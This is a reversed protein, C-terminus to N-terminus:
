LLLILTDTDVYNSIKLNYPYIDWGSGQPIKGSCRHGKSSKVFDILGNYTGKIIEVAYSSYNIGRIIGIAGPNLGNQDNITEIKCGIYKDSLDM